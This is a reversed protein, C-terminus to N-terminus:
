ADPGALRCRLSTPKCAQYRVRANKCADARVPKDGGNCGQFFGSRNVGGMAALVRRGIRKERRADVLACMIQVDLRCSLREDPTLLERELEPTWEIWCSYTGDEKIDTGNM